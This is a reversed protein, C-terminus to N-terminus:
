WNTPAKASKLYGTLESSFDTLLSTALPEIEGRYTGELKGFPSLAGFRDIAEVNSIQLRFRGDKADLVLRCKIGKFSDSSGTRPNMLEVDGIIKGLQSDTLQIASRGSVVREAIFAAAYAVIESKKLDVTEIREYVYRGDTTESKSEGVYIPLALFAAGLVALLASTSFRYTKNVLIM